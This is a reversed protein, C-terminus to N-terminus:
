MPEYCPCSESAIRTGFIRIYSLRRSYNLVEGQLEWHSLSRIM